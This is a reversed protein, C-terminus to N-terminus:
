RLLEGLNHLTVGIMPHPKRFMAFLTNACTELCRIAEKINGAKVHVWTSSGLLNVLDAKHQPDNPVEQLLINMYEKYISSIHEYNGELEKEEMEEQFKRCIENL